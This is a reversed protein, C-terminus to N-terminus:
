RAEEKAENFSIPEIHIWHDPGSLMGDSTLIMATRGDNVPELRVRLRGDGSLIELSEAAFAKSAAEGLLDLFLDLEESELHELESL